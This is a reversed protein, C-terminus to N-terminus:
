LRLRRAAEGVPLEADLVRSAVAAEWAAWENQLAPPMHERFSWVRLLARTSEATPEPALLLPLLRAATKGLAEWTIATGQNRVFADALATSWAQATPADLRGELWCRAAMEPWAHVWTEYEQASLARVLAENWHNWAALPSGELPLSPVVLAVADREVQPWPATAALWSLFDLSRSSFTGPGGPKGRFAGAGVVSWALMSLGSSHRWSTWIAEPDAKVEPPAHRVLRSWADSGLAAGLFAHTALTRRWAEPSPMAELAACARACWADCWHRADAMSWHAWHEAVTRGDPGEAWPTARALVDMMGEVAGAETFANPRDYVTLATHQAPSREDPSAGAALLVPVLAPWRYAAAHLPPAWTEPLRDYRHPTIRVRPWESAPPCAPHQLLERVAAVDGQAHARRWAAIPFPPRAM